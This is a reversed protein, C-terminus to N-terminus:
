NEYDVMKLFNYVTEFSWRYVRYLDDAYEGNEKIFYLEGDEREEIHTYYTSSGYTPIRFKLGIYKRCFEKFPYDCAACLSVSALEELMFGFRNLDITQGNLVCKLSMYKPEHYTWIIHFVNERYKAIAHQLAPVLVQWPDDILSDNEDDPVLDDNIRITAIKFGEHEWYHKKNKAQIYITLHQSYHRILLDFNGEERYAVWNYNKLEYWNSDDGLQTLDNLVFGQNILIGMTQDMIQRAEVLKGIHAQLVMNQLEYQADYKFVKINNNM